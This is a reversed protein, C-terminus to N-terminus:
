RAAANEEGVCSKVGLLMVGDKTSEPRSQFSANETGTDINESHDNIRKSRFKLVIAAAAGVLLVPALIWWLRKDPKLPEKMYGGAPIQPGPARATTGKGPKAQQDHGPVSSTERTEPRSSPKTTPSSRAGVTENKLTPSLSTVDTGNNSHHSPTPAQSPGPEPTDNRVTQNDTHPVVPTATTVAKHTTTANIPSTPEMTTVAPPEAPVTTINTVSLQTTQETQNSQATVSKTTSVTTMKITPSLATQGTSNETSVETFLHVSALLLLVPVMTTKM